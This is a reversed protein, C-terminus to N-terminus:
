VFPDHPRLSAHSSAHISPSHVFPVCQNLHDSLGHLILKVSREAPQVQGNVNKSLKTMLGAAAKQVDPDKPHAAVAKFVIPRVQDLVKLGGVIGLYSLFFMLLAFLCSSTFPRFLM